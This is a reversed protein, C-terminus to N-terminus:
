GLVGKQYLEAERTELMAQGFLQPNSAKLSLWAEEATMSSQLDRWKDLFLSLCSGSRHIEVPTQWRARVRDEVAEAIEWCIKSEKDEFKPARNSIFEERTLNVNATAFLRPHERRVQHWATEFNGGTAAKQRNALVMLRDAAAKPHVDPLAAPADPRASIVAAAGNRNTIPTLMHKGNAQNTFGVTDLKLIRHRQGGLPQTDRRDAVFSTFKYRGNAVAERGLDTLGDQHAWIGDARKEFRKFWALAASDQDENYIFHERGAYLGPWRDGLRQQDAAINALISDMAEDDLVQVMGAEANLLEGKPVIHIWDGALGGAARNCLLPSVALTLYRPNM